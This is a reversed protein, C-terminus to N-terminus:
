LKTSTETSNVAQKCEKKQEYKWAIFKGVGILLPILGIGVLEIDGDLTFFIIIGLGVAVYTAISGLPSKPASEVNFFDAPIDRGAEIAKSMLEYRAKKEKHRYYLIFFVVVGITLFIVSIAVVPLLVEELVKSVSSIHEREAKIRELEFLQESTLKGLGEELTAESSSDAVPQATVVKEVIEKKEGEKAPVDGQAWLTTAAFCAVALMCAIKKMRYNM